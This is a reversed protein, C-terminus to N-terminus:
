LLHDCSVALCEDPSDLHDLYLWPRYCYDDTPLYDQLYVTGSGRCFESRIEDETTTTADVAVITGIVTIAATIALTLFIWLVRHGKTKHRKKM